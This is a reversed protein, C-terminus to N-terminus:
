VSFTITFKAGENVKGEAVITGGLNTVHNYVLYLGIGKSDVHNHFKQYLGFIKDKVKQMDFGLGNDEIILQPANHLLTTKITIVPPRGPFAYKISNSILNLFISELYEKNFIVTEFAKFDCNIKAQSTEVLSRISCLVNELCQALNLEETVIKLGDKTNLDNVYKDLTEQINESARKLLHIFEAAEKNKVKKLDFLSFAAMLNNVPSRLDHATQYTLQKLQSNVKTLNTLFLNRDHEEKKKHTINKAIAYILQNADDPFSTWSLWVIEGTKTIYRNEFNYLPKKKTLETRVHTTIARDEPHIFDNVHGSLLEDKSFGLVKSVAPNIRKFRGDYGAICLLDPSLEFFLELKYPSEPM